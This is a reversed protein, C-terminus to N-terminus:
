RKSRREAAYTEDLSPGAISKYWRTQQLRKSETSKVSRPSSAPAHNDFMFKRSLEMPFGLQGYYDFLVALTALQWFLISHINRVWYYIYYM